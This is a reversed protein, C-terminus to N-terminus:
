DLTEHWRSGDMSMCLSELLFKKKQMTKMKFIIMSPLKNGDAMCALVVTFHNKENGTTKILVTKKGSTDVSRTLPMDFNMPTEDMNGIQHLDYDKKKRMKIMMRQFGVIKDDFDQPLRQAIRTKARVFLNKRKMFRYLWTTSGTFGSVDSPPMEKAMMEAKLRISIELGFLRKDLIWEHLKDWHPKMGPRASKATRPLKMLEDKKKRWDRVLKENVGFKRGAGKISTKEAEEVVRLKFSATYSTRTGKADM